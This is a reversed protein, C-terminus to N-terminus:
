IVVDVTSDELLVDETILITMSTVDGAKRVGEVVELAHADFAQIYCSTWKQIM